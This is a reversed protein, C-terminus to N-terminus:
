FTYFKKEEFYKKIVEDFRQYLDEDKEKGAFGIKNFENRMEKVKKVEEDSFDSEALLKKAVKIMEEKKAAREDFLKLMEVHHEKKKIQFEKRVESFEHWLEQDNDKGSFGIKKWEEMLADMKENAEKVNKIDNLLSKAKLIIDKKQNQKEENSKDLAEFYAKKKAIFEDKLAKFQAWLEDDQEKSCRGAKKFSVSYEDLQKSAKLIDERELLKKTLEIIEKKEDYSSQNLKPAKKALEDFLSNFENTLQQEYFSEEDRNSLMKYQRKIFLLDESRKSLDEEKLLEKALDILQHKNM